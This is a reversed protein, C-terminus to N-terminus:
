EVVFKGTYNTRENKMTIFYMGPKLGSINLRFDSTTVVFAPMVNKGTVDTVRFTNKGKVKDTLSVYIEDHAPNPYLKLQFNNEALEDIGILHKCPFSDSEFFHKIRMVQERNVAFSTLQGNPFNPERTYVYAYDISRIGNAPLNFPGSSVNSRRDSPTNPSCGTCPHYESWGSTDYPNGSYMYQTYDTSSPNYGNGGYTLPVSDKWIGNMRFYFQQATYPNGVVTFDNNSSIFYNLMCNEGVEDTVGNHNNDLGDNPVPEPGKLLALNIMPPHLGYGRDDEHPLPNLSDDDDGNLAFAIDLTTDCGVFDDLSIGLDVDTYVGIYVDHYDTDSRNIFDYHYFTTYNIVTDTGSLAPCNYAYASGHIEVGLNYQANTESHNSRNDNFVWWLMQDGKMDPYDGDYPNYVGDLNHDIFPALKRSYNGSGHAPWNLIISPITYSGNAVSGDQFKSIFENVTYREIKWLRDYQQFAGPNITADTTDLPGPWFDNGSQRYTQAALHLKGQQDKGGIWLGEAFISSKGSGKPVEYLPNGTLDYFMSGNNWVRAQVQNIDLYPCTDPQLAPSIGNINLKYIDSSNEAFILEGLSNYDFLDVSDNALAASYPGQIPYANSLSNQSNFELLYLDNLNSYNSVAFTKNPDTAGLFNIPQVVLNNFLCPNSQMRIKQFVTDKIQYNYSYINQNQDSTLRYVPSINPSTGKWGTSTLVNIGKSDSIYVGFTNEAFCLVTDSQLPSNATNFIVFSSGNISVAGRDTAVWLTTDSVFLNLINNSPLPTNLTNYTTLNLGDTKFLSNNTGIWKINGQFAISSVNNSPLGNTDNYYKWSTGDYETVGYNKYGTWIHDDPSVRIVRKTNNPNPMLGPPYPLTTIQAFLNTSVLFLLSLLTTKM